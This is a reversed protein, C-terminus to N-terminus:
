NDCKEINIHLLINQIRFIKSFAALPPIEIVSYYKKKPNLTEIYGFM